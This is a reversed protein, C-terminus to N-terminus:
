NGQLRSELDKIRRRLGNWPDQDDQISLVSNLRAEEIRKRLERLQDLKSTAGRDDSVPLEAIKKLTIGALVRIEREIESEIGDDLPTDALYQKIADQLRVLRTTPTSQERARVVQAEFQSEIEELESALSEYRTKEQELQESPWAPPGVSSPEPTVTAAIQSPQGSRNPGREGFDQYTAAIVPQIELVDPQTTTEGEAFQLEASLGSESDVTLLQGNMSGVIVKSDTAAVKSWKGSRNSVSDQLRGTRDYRRLGSERGIVFLDGSPDAAVGLLGSEDVLWQAVLQGSHMDWIRLSGDECATVCTEGGDMWAVQHVAAKHGGLRHMMEGTSLERVLVNGARDTSTVILGLPDISVDLIWDTHQTSRWREKGTETDICHLIKTPGGHILSNRDFSVDAAFVTDSDDLFRHTREGTVTDLLVVAGSEGHRGGAALLRSQEAFYKLDFCDGEPFPIANRIMGTQIEQVIVQQIGSFAVQDNGDIALATIPNPQQSVFAKAVVPATKIKIAAPTGVSSAKQAADEPASANIWDAILRQQEDPILRGGPPMVPEEKGSTLLYLLSDQADGRVIIEGLDSGKIIADYSSLDLGAEQRNRNHCGECHARLIPKIDHRYSITPKSDDISLSQASVQQAGLSGLLCLLIPLLFLEPVVTKM